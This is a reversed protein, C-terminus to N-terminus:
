EVTFESTMVQAFHPKGTTPDSFFCILGYRGPEFRAKFYAHQGTEIGVVGGIPQGPPPGSAGPEFAAGFDKASAGPDLKLLVVEHTQTGHNTVQITHTDATLQSAM